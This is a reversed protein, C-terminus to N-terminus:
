SRYDANIKVYDISFDCTWAIEKETGDKLDILVCFEPQKLVETAANEAEQGAYRGNEVLIVDDFYLDVREPDFEAGARGMAAVIRGWNADQGFFATKVLNSNAVTDAIRRADLRSAANVVSIEVLKTAGEGDRVCMRALAVLVAELTESFAARDDHTRVEAGSMGNALVLLTDNTSTDGDITIRNFSKENAETVIRRLDDREIGIDTAVFCLMTAMDPRIMGAGKAIGTITYAIGGIAGKRTVVKPVTDTTMIARAFGALGEEASLMRTLAPVAAEVKEVPLKQGIVGTSAVLVSEEDIGLDGAAAKAMAVADNMGADGTCCNANGSNVIIARCTGSAALRERDLRVCAATVRNKTFVGAAVAPRESVLLGLDMNGNKKIGAAIGAARFGQVAHNM